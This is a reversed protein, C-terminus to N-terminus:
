GGLSGVHAPVGNPVCTTLRVLQVMLGVLKRVLQAVLLVNLALAAPTQCQVAAYLPLVSFWGRVLPQAASGTVTLGALGVIWVVGSGVVPVINAVSLSV